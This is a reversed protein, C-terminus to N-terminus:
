FVDDINLLPSYRQQSVNSNQGHSAGYGIPVCQAQQQQPQSQQSQVPLLLGSPQYQQQQHQQSSISTTTNLQTINNNTINQIPTIIINNSINTQQHQPMMQNMNNINVGQTQQQLNPIIITNTNSLNCNNPQLSLLSQILLENPIKGYDLNNLNNLTHNVLQANINSNNMLFPNNNGNNVKIQQRDTKIQQINASNNGVGVSSSLVFSSNSHNSNISHTNTLHSHPPISPSLTSTTKTNNNNNNNDGPMITDCDDDSSISNREKKIGLNGPFANDFIPVKNQNLTCNNNTQKTM